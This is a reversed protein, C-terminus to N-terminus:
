LGHGLCMLNGATTTVTSAVLGIGWGTATTVVSQITQFGIQLLGNIINDLGPSSSDIQPTFGGLIATPVLVAAGVNCVALKGDSLRVRPQDLHVIANISQVTLNTHFSYAIKPSELSCEYM